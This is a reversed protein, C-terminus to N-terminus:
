SRDPFRTADVFTKMFDPATTLEVYEVERAVKEAESRKERSLLAMCAGEGAANGVALINSTGCDPFMGIALARETDIVTGFAGALVVRDPREVGMRRMLILSGAFLAAKALQVSRVDQQTVTIDQGIATEKAWAIVFEPVGDRGQRLRSSARERDFSGSALIVGASLMEAVADIVGSGCIGRAGIDEAPLETNWAQSGIVTFGVELTEPDIRVRDISGQAARMGHKISGGEFAPGTACSASLLRQRNGLVIEGNTGIDVILLVEDQEHPEEAILVAVNDAGVFGAEVPLVHVNASPLIGLGLDRAKVNVSRTLVPSFPAQGLCQVELGLFIHHMATNGVLVVEAIDEPSLFVRRTVERAMRSLADLTKQRMRSLNDGERANAIRTLVDAGFEIQPNLMSETAVVDGTALDCLHGVVTTTGLDVALGFAKKSYGAEVRIVEKEERVSLTIQGKGERIGQGLTMLAAHDIAPRNLHFRSELRTSVREWEGVPEGLEAPPLEMYHKRITPAVEMSRGGADERIVSRGPRSEEPVFVVLDGEVEALCAFREGAQLGHEETFGKEKESLPSLHNRSSTIGHEQFTDELVRVKCKGCVAQGGCVAELGQGMLRAAEQLTGGRAAEGRRGSPLFLIEFMEEGSGKEDGM